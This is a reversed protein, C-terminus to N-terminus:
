RRRKSKKSGGGRKKPVPRSKPKQKKAPRKAKPKSKPKAKAGSKKPRPSVKGKKKGIPKAPPRIGGRGGSKKKSIFEKIPADEFEDEINGKRREEVEADLFHDGPLPPMLNIGKLKYSTLKTGVAKENAMKVFEYLNVKVDKKDVSRKDYQIVIRAIMKTSALELHSGQTDPIFLVKKESANEILFRKGFYTEKPADYYVATIPKKPNFKEILVIDEELRANNKHNILRYHGTQTIILIMDEGTFFGLPEGKGDSNLRHTLGDYHVEVERNVTPGVYKQTIKSVMFKSLINGQVGMAKVGLQAFDFDFGPKKMGPRPRLTVTITESEGNPMITFYTVSSGPNGRTLNYEKDRIISKVNFRKVYYPGKTGDQYVMNYVTDNDTKRWVAIHIIDKGMFKKDTVRSVMMVGDSRFAIIDDMDNCDAVFEDKRLSTGMFGEARNVYVKTNNIVVAAAQIVDFVRSETRRERGAGYKKKLNKFYEIAYEILNKLNVKVAKIDRELGKIHEDAKFADFRSIRKIKIETLKIIDETTIDRKFMNKFPKLGKDIASLVGEWTEETEIKRYIKNEIFVRELSSFHWQEDLENLKIQLEQKLLEVTNATSIKLLESVGVFRPKDNEIVCTNPAISIECDTFAFLADITKDPSTEPHLHLMIEVKDSTNDEIKKIKIKGKDIAKIISDILSSTNTGFPVDDIILANKGDQRIKARVKIRGGRMGDKYETFDAYGGSPFDPVLHVKKGKLIDISGDILENFNHPLIKTALGVAIGEGGQALLLPFKIPLNMPEKNRGDYSAAWKTTKPNFVVELAFKSLRAEIYRAAAASDGTFINGWNGQCDILLNKQGIQVMADGISADGHPHYKMTNGIVNAVKNYRGDELERMSHLIRRQVPKLGDYIAPVARELIVYSAYDLFWNQYLGSLPTVGGLEEGGGDENTDHGNGKFLDTSEPKVPSKGKKKEEKKKKAM